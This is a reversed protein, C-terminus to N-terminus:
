IRIFPQVLRGILSQLKIGGQLAVVCICPLGDEVVPRHEITEDAEDFDGEGYRGFEHRFAGQFVCTWETGVHRHRPLRTGPAAKLLFVRVGDNSPVEIPRLQVSGGIRRWLGMAYHQLPAPLVDGDDSDQIGSSQREVPAGVSATSDLQAMARELAGASMDAPAADELFAGGVCEFTRVANRCQACLAIHTAVIVARAEDLTGSAFATLTEDSPHHIITM